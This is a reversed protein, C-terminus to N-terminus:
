SRPSPSTRRGGCRSKSSVRGARAIGATGAPVPDCQSQARHGCRSAPSTITPSSVSSIGAIRPRRHCRVFSRQRHLAHRRLVTRV